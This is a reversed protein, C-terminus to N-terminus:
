PIYGVRIQPAAIVPGQVGQPGKDNYGVGFHLAVIYGKFALLFVVVM